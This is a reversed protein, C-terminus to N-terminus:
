IKELTKLILNNDFPKVIFNKAGYSIAERIYSEQGMASVMLVKADKDIQKIKKLATIGDMEPMTIDLIVLDPQLENYKKVAVKGNEAEGVVEYGGKELTKRISIRMFAADDVILVKRM